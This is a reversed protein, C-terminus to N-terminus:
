LLRYEWMIFKTLVLITVNDYYIKWLNIYSQKGVIWPPSTCGCSSIGHSKFGGNEVPNKNWLWNTNYKYTIYINM